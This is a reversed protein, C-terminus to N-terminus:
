KVRILYLIAINKPRFEEATHVTGWCRSADFTAPYKGGEVEVPGYSSSAAGTNRFFCGSYASDYVSQRVGGLFTGVINRGADEQVIGLSNSNGGAGRLFIGRYDPVRSGVLAALEPYVSLM